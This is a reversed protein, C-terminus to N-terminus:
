THVHSDLTPPSPYILRNQARASSERAALLPPFRGPSPSHSQTEMPVGLAFIQTQSPPLVCHAFVDASSQSQCRPSTSYAPQITFSSKLIIVTRFELNVHSTFSVM